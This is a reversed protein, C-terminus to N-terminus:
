IINYIMLLVCYISMQPLTINMSIMIYEDNYDHANLLMILSFLNMVDSFLMHWTFNIFKLSLVDQIINHYSIILYYPLQTCLNQITTYLMYETIYYYNM